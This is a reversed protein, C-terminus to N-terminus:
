TSGGKLIYFYCSCQVVSMLLRGMDKYMHNQPAAGAPGKQKASLYLCVSSYLELDCSWPWKLSCDYFFLIAM